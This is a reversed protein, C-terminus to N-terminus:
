IKGMFNSIKTVSVCATIAEHYGFTMAREMLRFTNVITQGRSNM